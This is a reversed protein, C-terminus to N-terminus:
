PANRLLMKLGGTLQCYRQHLRANELASLFCPLDGPRRCLEHMNMEEIMCVDDEVITPTLCIFMETQTDFWEAQSFLKGFYPVEGIIPMAERHDRTVKRRLGGLIVTQGEPVRVQNKINRRTVDPRNNKSPHMTDFTIDTELTIFRGPSEELCDEALHITPTIDITIGYQTRTYADKIFPPSCDGCDLIVAGTNISIEEVLAIKAPTQNLTTVSPSANIQVNEQSLLFQYILDFAPSTATRMRSMFFTLIGENLPSTGVDNWILGTKHTNSAAAGIKLLNLGFHDEEVIKKEFLLVEIKVMKKPRDLRKLLEKLRPLFEREVVMTISGSKPDVVFNGLDKDDKKIACSSPPRNFSPSVILNPDCPGVPTYNYLSNVDCFGNACPGCGRQTEYNVVEVMPGDPKERLEPTQLLLQYVRNLVLAVEEPQAHQCTYTYLVRERPDDAQQEVYSLLQQARAVQEKTGVVFIGAVSKELPMVRLQSGVVGEKSTIFYTSLIGEAEKPSLRCLRLLQFEKGNGCETMLLAVKLIERISAANGVFFLEQGYLSMLMRDPHVFRKLGLYLENPDALNTHMVFCVPMEPPLREIEDKRSTIWVQNLPQEKRQIVQRMFPNMVVIDFGNQKLILEIMEDWCSNPISMPCSLTLPYNACENPILYVFRQSYEVVLEGLTIQQTQWQQCNSEKVLREKWGEQWYAREMRLNAIEQLLMEIQQKDCSDQYSKQLQGLAAAIQVNLEELRANVEDCEVLSTDQQMEVTKMKEALQAARATFLTVPFLLLFCAFLTAIM